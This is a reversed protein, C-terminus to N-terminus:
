HQARDAWYHGQPMRIRCAEIRADICVISEHLRIAIISEQCEDALALARQAATKMDRLKEVM